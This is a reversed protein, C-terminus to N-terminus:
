HAATQASRKTEAVAGALERLMRATTDFDVCADTISQGYVLQCIDKPINQRGAKLHSEIMVGLLHPSGDRLQRCIDELVIGQKNHDKSANDHSCDIMLRANVKAAVAQEAAAAVHKADYNPGHKGGRMVLHTDPNGRTTVISVQGDEAV